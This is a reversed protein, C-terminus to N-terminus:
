MDSSIYGSAAPGIRIASFMLKRRSMSRLNRTSDSNQNFILRLPIESTRRSMFNSTTMKDSEVEDWMAELQQRGM